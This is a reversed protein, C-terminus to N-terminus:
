TDAWLSCWIGVYTYAHLYILVANMSQKVQMYQMCRDAHWKRSVSAEFLEIWLSSLLPHRACALCRFYRSSHLETSFAPAPCHSFRNEYEWHTDASHQPLHHPHFVQYEFPQSQLIQCEIRLRNKSLWQTLCLFRASSSFSSYCVYCLCNSM